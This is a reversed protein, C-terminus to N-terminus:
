ALLSRTRSGACGRSRMPSGGSRRTAPPPTSGPTTRRTWWRPSLRTSTSATSCSGSGGNISEVVVAERLNVTAPHDALAAAGPAMTRATCRYYAGSRITAGQMKRRCVGCRVLGRLLYFRATVRGGREAKRATALGGTAKSRRLLQAQTFTEVSVIEPHAPERSRVVRDPAARRFRVVYGAAV